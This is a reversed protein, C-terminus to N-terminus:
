EVHLWRNMNRHYIKRWYIIRGIVFRIDRVGLNCYLDPDNSVNCWLCSGNECSCGVQRKAWELVEGNDKDDARFAEELPAIHEDYFERSTMGATAERTIPPRDSIVPGPFRMLVTGM